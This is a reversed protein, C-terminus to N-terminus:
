MARGLWAVADTLIEVDGMNGPVIICPLERGDEAPIRWVSVGARVQGLVRARQAGLGRKIVEAATIGGKTVIADAREALVRAATTLAVMVAAGDALSAHTPSRDRESAIFSVAESRERRLEEAAVREGEAAPDCLAARTSVVTPEGVRHALRAVQSRAGHTHSGCVVLVRGAGALTAPEILAASKVGALTAALPAASRVVVSRRPWVAEVARAVAAIDDPEVADPLIVAGAPASHLTRALLGSRVDDLSVPLAPADSREAVFEALTSASFGFVPDRAFETEGVPTLDSGSRLYHTGGHTVRGGEPFSPVFLIVADDDAFVASEAFVHGRLTSDGRLVFRVQVGLRRAAREASVRISRALAVADSESLARSNTQVYVSREGGLVETLAEASHEFLVTVETASQTGTPDDDLVVIRTPTSM